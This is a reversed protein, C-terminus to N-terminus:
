PQPNPLMRNGSFDRCIRTQSVVCPSYGDYCSADHKHVRLRHRSFVWLNSTEPTSRTMLNIAFSPKMLLSGGGEVQGIDIAETFNEDTSNKIQTNIQISNAGKGGRGM